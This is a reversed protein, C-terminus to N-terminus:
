AGTRGRAVESVMRLFGKMEVPKSVTRVVGSIEQNVQLCCDVHWPASLAFSGIFGLTKESTLLRPAADGGWM